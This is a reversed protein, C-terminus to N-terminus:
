IRYEASSHPRPDIFQLSTIEPWLFEPYVHDAFLTHIDFVADGSANVPLIDEGILDWTSGNKILLQLGVKYFKRLTQIVGTVTASTPPTEAHWDFTVAPSGINTPKGYMLIAPGSVLITWDRSIYYNRLMYEAVLQVWDNLDAVVTADPIQTGSLDPNPKCTLTIKISGWILNITMDEFGNDSFYINLRSPVAESEITNDSHQTFRIPNGTLAVLPPTKTITLM